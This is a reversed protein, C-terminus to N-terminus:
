PCAVDPELAVDAGFTAPSTIQLPELLSVSMTGCMSTGPVSQTSKIVADALGGDRLFSIVNTPDPPIVFNRVTLKVQDTGDLEAYQVDALTTETTKSIWSGSLCTLPNTALELTILTPSGGAGATSETIFKFNYTGAYADLGCPTVPEIASCKASTMSDVITFDTSNERIAAFNGGSTIAPLEVLQFFLDGCSGKSTWNTATLELRSNGGDPLLATAGPPITFNPVLIQMIGDAERLYEIDGIKDGSTLSAVEGTYCLNTDTSAAVTMRVQTRETQVDAKFTLVYDGELGAPCRIKPAPGADDGMDADGSDMGADDVPLVGAGCKGEPVILTLDDNEIPIAGFTSGELGINTPQSVQGDVTGCFASSSTVFGSLKITAVIDGGSIPNAEGDVAADTLELEFTGDELLQVDNVIIPPGVAVRADARPDTAPTLDTKLPQFSFNAVFNEDVTVTTDFFLPTSPLVSTAISLFYRGSFDVQVANNPDNNTSTTSRYDKTNDGFEKYRGEPDPTDCAVFAVALSVASLAFLARSINM